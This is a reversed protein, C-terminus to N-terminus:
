GSYSIVQSVKNKDYEKFAAEVETKSMRRGTRISASVMENKSIFGDSNIDLAQEFLCLHLTSLSIPIFQKNQTKIKVEFAIETKTKRDCFEDYSIKGDRDKDQSCHYKSLNASM